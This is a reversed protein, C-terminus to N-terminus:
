RERERGRETERERENEGTELRWRRSGDLRELRNSTVLNGAKGVLIRAHIHPQQQQIHTRKNREENGNRPLPKYLPLVRQFHSM